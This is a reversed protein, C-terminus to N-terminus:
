DVVITCNLRRQSQLTSLSNWGQTIWEWLTPSGVTDIVVHIRNATGNNAIWHPAWNNSVWMQGAPLSPVHEDCGFLAHPNTQLVIHVRLRHKWYYDVDVHTEIAAGPELISVRSEGIPSEM